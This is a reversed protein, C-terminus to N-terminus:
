KRSKLRELTYKDFTRFIFQNAKENITRKMVQDYIHLPKPVGLCGFGIAKFGYKQGKEELENAYDVDLLGGVLIYRKGKELDKVAQRIATENSICTNLLHIKMARSPYFAPINWAIECILLMLICLSLINIILLQKNM